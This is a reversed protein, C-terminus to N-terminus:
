MPTESWQLIAAHIRGGEAVARVGAAKKGGREHLMGAARVNEHKGERAAADGHGRLNGAFEVGREIDEDDALEADGAVCFEGHAGDGRAADLDYVMIHHTSEADRTSGKFSFGGNLALLKMTPLEGIAAMGGRGRDSSFSDDEDIVADGGAGGKAGCDLGEARLVRALDDDGCGDGRTLGTGGQTGKDLAKEGKVGRGIKAADALAVCVEGLGGIGFDGLEEGGCFGKRGRVERRLGAGALGNGGGESGM